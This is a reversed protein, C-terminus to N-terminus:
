IAEVRFKPTSNIGFAKNVPITDIANLPPCLKRELFPTSAERLAIFQDVFRFRVLYAAMNIIDDNRECPIRESTANAQRESKNTNHTKRWATYKNYM